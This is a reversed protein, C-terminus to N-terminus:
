KHLDPDTLASEIMRIAINRNRHQARCCGVTATIGTPIHTVKVDVPDAGVHQGGRRDKRLTETQLQEPPIM